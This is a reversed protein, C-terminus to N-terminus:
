LCTSGRERCFEVLKERTPLSPQAGFVTVALAGACVAIEVAEALSRGEALAVAMAATFADGAATTDVAEVEHARVRSVDDPTAVVAGWAGLKLVAARAGM